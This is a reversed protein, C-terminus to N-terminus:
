LKPLQLEIMTIPNTFSEDVAKTSVPDELHVGLEVTVNAATTRHNKSVIRKLALCYRESLKPEQSKHISNYGQFSSSQVCRVFQGIHNRIGGAIYVGVIQIRPFDSLDGM